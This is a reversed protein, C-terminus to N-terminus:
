GSSSIDTNIVNFQCPLDLSTAPQKASTYSCKWLDRQLLTNSWTDRMGLGTQTRMVAVAYTSTIFKASCSEIVPFHFCVVPIHCNPLGPCALLIGRTCLKQLRFKFKAKRMQKFPHNMWNQWSKYVTMDNWVSLVAVFQFTIKNKLASHWFQSRSEVQDRKVVEWNPKIGIKLNRNM